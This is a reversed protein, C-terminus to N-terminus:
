FEYSNPLVCNIGKSFIVTQCNISQKFFYLFFYFFPYRDGLIPEINIFM